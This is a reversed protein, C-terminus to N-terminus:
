TRSGLGSTNLGGRKGDAGIRAETDRSVAGKRKAGCWEREAIDVGVESGRM